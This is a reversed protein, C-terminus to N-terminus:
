IKPGHLKLAHELRLMRDVYVDGSPQYAGTVYGTNAAAPAPAAAMPTAGDQGPVVYPAAAGADFGTTPRAFANAGAPASSPPDAQM